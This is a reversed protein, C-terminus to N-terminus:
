DSSEPPPTPDHMKEKKEQPLQRELELIREFYSAARRNAAALRFDMGRVWEAMNIRDIRRLEAVIDDASKFTDDITKM